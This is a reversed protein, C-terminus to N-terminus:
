FEWNDSPSGSSSLILVREHCESEVASVVGVVLLWSEPRQPGSSLSLVGRVAAELPALAVDM